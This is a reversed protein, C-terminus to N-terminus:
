AQSTVLLGLALGLLLVIWRPIEDALPKLRGPQMTSMSGLM